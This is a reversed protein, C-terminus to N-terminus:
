FMDNLYRSHATLSLRSSKHDNDGYSAMLFFLTNNGVVKRSCLSVPTEKHLRLTTPFLIIYPTYLLIEFYYNDRSWVRPVKCILLSINVHSYQTDFALFVEFYIHQQLFINIGILIFSLYTSEYGYHNAAHNYHSLKEILNSIFINSIIKLHVFGGYVHMNEVFQKVYGSSYTHFM